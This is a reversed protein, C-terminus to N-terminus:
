RKLFRGLRDTHCGPAAWWQGRQVCQRGKYAAKHMDSRKSAPLRQKTRCNGFIRM